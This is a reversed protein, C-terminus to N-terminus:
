IKSKNLGREFSKRIIARTIQLQRETSSVPSNCFVATLPFYSSLSYLQQSVLLVSTEFTNVVFNVHEQTANSSFLAFTEVCFPPNKRKQKIWKVYKNRCQNIRTIKGGVFVEGIALLKQM